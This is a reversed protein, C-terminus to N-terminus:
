KHLERNRQRLNAPTKKWELHKFKNHHIWLQVSTQSQHLKMLAPGRLIGSHRKSTRITMKMVMVTRMFLSVPRNMSRYRRRHHPLLPHRRSTEQTAVPVHFVEVLAGEHEFGSQSM